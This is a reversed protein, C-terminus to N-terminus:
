VVKFNLNKSHSLYYIKGVKFAESKSNTIKILIGQENWDEIIGYKSYTDGPYLQVEKGILESIKM